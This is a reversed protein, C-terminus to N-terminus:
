HLDRPTATPARGTGGCTSCQGDPGAPKRLATPWDPGADDPPPICDPCRKVSDEVPLRCDAENADGKEHIDAARLLMEGLTRLDSISLMLAMRPQWRGGVVSKNEFMLVPHEPPDDDEVWGVSVRESDAALKVTIPM